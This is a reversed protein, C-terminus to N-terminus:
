LFNQIDKNSALSFALPYAIEAYNRAHAFHDPNKGEVYKGVPNGTSDKEYIRAPSKINIRYEPSVDIPLRISANRFRGLSLDLWSTRDVSVTPQPANAESLHIEKGSAGTSYFCLRVRGPFRFAFNRASHREPQADIVCFRVNYKRMLLDLEEFQKVKGEWIVRVQSLINLDNTGVDPPIWLDIECHLVHPGVDVGMTVIGGSDWHEYKKYNKSKCNEIDEDTIQSGAVLHCEGLTSNYFEQEATLDFQSKVFTKAIEAPSGARAMSYMQSIHFGRADRGDFAPVWRANELSLWEKKTEHHLKNKCEKCIYHSDNIKPDTIEEATVVLCDPFVLTTYRSCSPCQFFYEEQTTEKFHANIGHDERIPTSIMLLWYVEQGSTRHLALPINEQVMEELEDIVIVAVPISKLKSKSRSGRVYLSSAGARKLGVNKVDSFIKSLHPSSELAPDFRSASFDSADSESPLLYLVSHCQVDIHYFTFNLAWETFGMQAAKQGVVKYSQCDHMEKLWPHREFRWPGKPMVRYNQAWLSPKQVSQRKLGEKIRDAMLTALLHAM